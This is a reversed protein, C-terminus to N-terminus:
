QKKKSKGYRPSRGFDFSRIINGKYYNPGIKIHVSNVGAVSSAAALIKQQVHVLNMVKKDLTVTVDGLSSRVIIGRAIPALVMAVNAEITFDLREQEIPHPPTFPSQELNICIQKLLTEVQSDTLDISKAPEDKSTNKDQCCEPSLVLNYFDPHWPSHGIINKTWQSAYRDYKGMSTLAARKSSKGESLGRAIRKAQPACALIRFIHSVSQPILHSVIGILICNGTALLNSLTKILASLCKERDHTFNNFPIPKGRVVKHLLDLKIGHDKATIELLDNDTYVSCSLSKELQQTLRRPDSYLRHTIAIVPM